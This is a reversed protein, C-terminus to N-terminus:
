LTRCRTARIVIQEQQLQKELGARYDQWWAEDIDDVMVEVIIIRDEVVKGGNKWLGQAPSRTLATAGGFCEALVSIVTEIEAQPIATGDGRNLPLFLEIAFMAASAPSPPVVNTRLADAM